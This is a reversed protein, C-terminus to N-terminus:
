REGRGTTTTPFTARVRWGAGAPGAEVHGGLVAARERMGVLGRGSGATTTPASGPAAGLDVVEVVWAGPVHRVAVDVRRTGPAHRLANTLSEQVVRYIALRLGTDDPQALDLGETRVPLGAAVFGDVLAALDGEGTTPGLPAAAPEDLAGLVRRMDGLASRGTSSLETLALRARDPSRDLAASAGDALSIMVSLSHAVVDHMERAIRAREAARALEAQRDRDRALAASRDVFEAVRLRRGRVSLGIAMALLMALVTGLITGLSTTNLTLDWDGVPTGVSPRPETLRATLAVAGARATAATWAASPACAAAVAYLAFAQGYDAGAAAGTVLLALVNVATVAGFVAMPRHRRWWLATAGLVALAIGVPVAARREATASDVIGAVGVLAVVVIDSIRPHTLLLRRLPGLRRAEAETLVGDATM